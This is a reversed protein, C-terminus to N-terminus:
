FNQFVKAFHERLEEEDAYHPIGGLFVTCKHNFLTPKDMDVRLHRAGLLTNNAELAAALASEDKFTVYANYSGKQEGFKQSNVCVKRVLDQNGADDVKAGAVPVSRMRCSEVAGYKQFLKTVSKVSETIPINGVFITRSNVKGVSKEEAEVPGGDKKGLTDEALRKHKPKKEKKSVDPTDKAVKTPVFEAPKYTRTFKQQGDASFLDALNGSM